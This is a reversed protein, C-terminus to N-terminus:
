SRRMEDVAVSIADLVSTMEMKTTFTSLSVRVAADATQFDVGMALLTGPPHDAGSSCAAGTGIICNDRALINVLVDASLDPLSFCCTNDLRLARASHITCTPYRSLLAVEFEDRLTKINRRDRLTEKAAVALGALSATNITGSRLGNEQGGGLM